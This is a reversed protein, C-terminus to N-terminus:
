AKKKFMKLIVWAHPFTIAALFSFFIADFIKKDKFFYYLIAIGFLSIIWYIFASKFYLKFNSFSYTGYLFTIQDYLSPISHWFIFYITFGWILSGIKFLISIIAFLFLEIVCNRKFNESKISFYIFQLLLVIIQVLLSYSILNLEIKHFTIAEIIVQVEQQHFYFLLFLLVMGYNFKFFFTLWKPFGNELKQWNQEGFHYASVTIFLFLALSPIVIFIGAAIFVLILYSTIIKIFKQKRGVNLEKIILLDNAGHLIGFSFILFFGIIIQWENKLYSVIWLSLFSMYISLKSIKEM